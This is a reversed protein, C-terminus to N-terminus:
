PFNSGKKRYLKSFFHLGFSICVTKANTETRLSGRLRYESAFQMKSRNTNESSICQSEQFPVQNLYGAEKKRTKKGFDM